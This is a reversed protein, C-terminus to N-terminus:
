HISKSPSSDQDFVERVHETPNFDPSKSPLLVYDVDNEDISTLMRQNQKEKWKNLYNM